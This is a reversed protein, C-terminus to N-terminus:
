AFYHSPVPSGGRQRARNGSRRYLGGASPEPLPALAGSVALVEDLTSHSPGDLTAEVIVRALTEDDREDPETRTVRGTEPDFRLAGGTFPHTITQHLLTTM